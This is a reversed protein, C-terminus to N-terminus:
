EEQEPNCQRMAECLIDSSQVVALSWIPQLLNQCAPFGSTQLCQQCLNRACLDNQRDTLQQQRSAPHPHSPAQSLIM